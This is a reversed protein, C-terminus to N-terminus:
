HIVGQIGREGLVEIALPLLDLWCDARGASSTHLQARGMSRQPKRVFVCQKNWLGSEKV